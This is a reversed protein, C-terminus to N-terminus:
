ILSCSYCWPTSGTINVFLVTRMLTIPSRDGLGIGPLLLPILASKPDLLMLILCGALMIQIKFNKFRNINLM